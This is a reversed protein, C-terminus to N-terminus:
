FFTSHKEVFLNEVAPIWIFNTSSCECTHSILIKNIMMFLIGIYSGGCQRLSMFYNVYFTNFIQSPVVNACLLNIKYGFSILISAISQSPNYTVVFRLWKCLTYILSLSLISSAVWQFAEWFYQFLTYLTCTM